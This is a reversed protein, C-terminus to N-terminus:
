FRNAVLADIIRAVTDLTKHREGDPLVIELLPASAGAGAGRAAAWAAQLRPAHLPGVIDNTVGAVKRAARPGSLLPGQLAADCLLGDGIFIPYSRDGLGVTLAPTATNM